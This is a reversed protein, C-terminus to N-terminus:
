PSATVLVAFTPNGRASTWAAEPLISSSPPPLSARQCVGLAVSGSARNASIGTPMRSNMAVSFRMRSRFFALRSALCDQHRVTTKQESMSQNLGAAVKIGRASTSM